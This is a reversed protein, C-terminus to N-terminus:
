SNLYLIVAWHFVGTHHVSQVSSMCRTITRASLFMRMLVTTLWFAATLVVPRSVVWSSSCLFVSRINQLHKLFPTRRVFLQERWMKLHEPCLRIPRVDPAEHTNTRVHHALTDVVSLFNNRGGLAASKRCREREREIGKWGKGTISQIGARLHLAM